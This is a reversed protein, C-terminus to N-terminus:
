EHDVGTLKSKESKAATKIPLVDGLVYRGGPRLVISVSGISTIIRKPSMRLELASPAVWAGDMCISVTDMDQKIGCLVHNPLSSAKGMTKTAGGAVPSLRNLAFPSGEAYILSSYVCAIIIAIIKKM